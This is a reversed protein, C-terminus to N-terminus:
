KNKKPRGGKKGNEKSSASKRASKIRGLAAGAESRIEPEVADKLAAIRKMNWASSREKEWGAIYDLLDNLSGEVLNWDDSLVMQGTEPSNELLEEAISIADPHYFCNVTECREHFARFDQDEWEEADWLTTEKRKEIEEDSPKEVLGSSRFVQCSESKCAWQYIKV